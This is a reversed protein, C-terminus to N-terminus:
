CTGFIHIIFANLDQFDITDDVLLDFRENWNRRGGPSDCGGHGGAAM